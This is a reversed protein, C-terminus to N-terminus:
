WYRKVHCTASKVIIIRVSRAMLRRDADVAISWSVWFLQFFTRLVLTSYFPLALPFRAHPSLTCTLPVHYLYIPPHSHRPNMNHQQSYPYM